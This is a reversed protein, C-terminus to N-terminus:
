IVNKYTCIFDEIEMSPMKKFGLCASDFEKRPIRVQGRHIDRGLIKGASKRLGDHIYVYEDPELGVTHGIRLATDYIACHGVGDIGGILKVIEEYLRDFSPFKKGPLTLLILQSAASNAATDSMCWQHRERNRVCEKYFVYTFGHKALLGDVRELDGYLDPRVLTPNGTSLHNTVVSIGSQYKKIRQDITAGKVTNDFLNNTQSIFAGARRM